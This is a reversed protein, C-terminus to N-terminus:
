AACDANSGVISRLMLFGILASLDLAHGTVVLAVFGGFVALPLAFLNLIVMPVVLLCVLIVVILYVLGIAGLM